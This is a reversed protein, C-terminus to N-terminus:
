VGNAVLELGATDVEAPLANPSLKGALLPYGDCELTNISLGDMNSFCRSELWALLFDIAGEANSIGRSSGLFCNQLRACAVTYHWLLSKSFRVRQFILYTEIPM